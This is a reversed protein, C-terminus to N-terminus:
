VMLRSVSQQLDSLVVVIALLINSEKLRFLFVWSEKGASDGSLALRFYLFLLHLSEAATDTQGIDVIRVLKLDHFFMRLM